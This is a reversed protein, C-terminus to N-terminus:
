AGRVGPSRELEPVHQVGCAVHATVGSDRTRRQTRFYAAHPIPVVVVVRRLEPGFDRFWVVVGRVVRPKALRGLGV